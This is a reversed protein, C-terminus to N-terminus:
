GHRELFQAYMWLSWLAASHDSQGSKHQNILKTLTKPQFQGSDLMAESLLTQQLPQYLEHRFWYGIPMVFGMKPRYLINKDVRSHLSKKFLAKGQNASINHKSPLQFAWEIFKHDLLPSRVELSNAMSARDVKTLIDGPLWTKFDLYQIQKLPDDPLNSQYRKLQEIGCYGQLQQKYADSYLTGRQNHSIKSMAHAYGEIPSLALSQLTTKARLPQPAWDLKPYLAGLRGFLTRRLPSPLWAKIQNEALLLQHRRYGAFVEDGGDGSIAVKVYQSALKCVEYTPLSSVDAFPQDYIDQLKSLNKLHKTGVIGQHHMTRYRQAIQNAYHSEDHDSEDFGISCTHLPSDLFEDCLAVMASSDVGGSLFAGLPVDAVLRPEVSQKLQHILEQQLSKSDGHHHNTDYTLDWYPVPKLKSQPHILLYHGAELTYIHEFATYPDPSYGFMLYDELHQERLKKNIDPHALLVKLESGFILQGQQSLAYHLPKKGVRDRALFLQKQRADWLAFAFMGQFHTLCDVGWQAYAHLIVETDSLTKFQHGLASLQRYLDQYNYIEGNFVLIVDKAENLMPQHGNDLDIISLRKHALGIHNDMYYGEDDPGRHSQRNNIASLQHESIPMQNIFNFIGAIGCM